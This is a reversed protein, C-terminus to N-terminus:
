KKLRFKAEKNILNQIAAQKTNGYGTPQGICGLERYAMWDFDRIKIDPEIYATIIKSKSIEERSM